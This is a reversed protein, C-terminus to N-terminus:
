LPKKKQIKLILIHHVCYDSHHSLQLLRFLHLLRKSTNIVLLSTPFRTDSAQSFVMEIATPNSVAAHTQHWLKQMLQFVSSTVASPSCMSGCRQQSVSGANSLWLTEWPFLPFTISPRNLSQNMCLNFDSLALLLSTMIRKRGVSLYFFISNVLELIRFSMSFFPSRM